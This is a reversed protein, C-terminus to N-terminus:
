KRLALMFEEPTIEAQRLLGALTGIKVEDHLPVVCGKSERKMVVHSGSQRVKQFGLRELARQIEAGSVHPLKPM